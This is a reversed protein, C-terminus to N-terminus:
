ELDINGLEWEYNKRSFPGKRFKENLEKATMENGDRTFKLANGCMELPQGKDDKHYLCLLFDSNFTKILNQEADSSESLNDIEGLLFKYDDNKLSSKEFFKKIKKSIEGERIKKKFYDLRATDTIITKGDVMLLNGNNDRGEGKWYHADDMAYSLLIGYLIAQPSYEEGGRQRRSARRGRKKQSGRKSKKANKVKTKRKRGRSNGESNMSNNSTQRSVSGRQSNRRTQAAKAIKAVTSFKVPM